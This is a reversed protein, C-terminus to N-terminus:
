YFLPFIPMFVGGQEFTISKKRPSRYSVTTILFFADKTLVGNSVGNENEKDFLFLLVARPYYWIAPPATKSYFVFGRRRIASPGAHPNKVQRKTRRHVGQILNIRPCGFFDLFACLFDLSRMPAREVGNRECDAEDGLWSWSCELDVGLLIM